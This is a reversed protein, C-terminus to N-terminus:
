EDPQVERFTIRGRTRASWTWGGQGRRVGRRAAPERAAPAPARPATLRAAPRSRALPDAVGTLPGRSDLMEDVAADYQDHRAVGLHSGNLRPDGM